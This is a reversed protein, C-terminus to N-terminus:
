ERNDSKVSFQYVFDQSWYVLTGDKSGTIYNGTAVDVTGDSLIEPCFRVKTVAYRQQSRIFTPKEEIPLDLPKGHEYTEDDRFGHLLHSVFEDWSCQNDRDTNVRLFLREFQGDTFEIGYRGLVARLEWTELQRGDAFDTQRIEEIDAASLLKHLRPSESSAEATHHLEVSSYDM